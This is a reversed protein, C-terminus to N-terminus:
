AGGAGELGNALRTASIAPTGPLTVDIPDTAVRLDLAAANLRERAVAIQTELRNRAANGHRAVRRRDAEDLARVGRLLTPLEAKRGLLRVRLAELEEVRNVHAIATEGARTIADIRDIQDTM